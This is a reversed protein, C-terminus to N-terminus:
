PLPLLQRYKRLELLFTLGFGIAASQWTGGTAKASLGAIGGVIVSNILQELFIWLWPGKGYHAAGAFRQIEHDHDPDPPNTNAFFLRIRPNARM